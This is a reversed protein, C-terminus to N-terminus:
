RHAVLRLRYPNSFDANRAIKEMRCLLEAAIEQAAASKPVAKAKGKNM